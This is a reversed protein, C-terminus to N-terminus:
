WKLGFRDGGAGSDRGGKLDGQGKRRVAVERTTDDEVPQDQKGAPREPPPLTAKVSLGMKQAQPDLSLVKVEIEDGEKVHNRVAVVRHHALESIHVLGEVGPELRVFAGFQAIRTVSGKVTAGVPFRDEIGQWPHETTDRYSLSIKGSDVGIKEIKVQLQQGPELVEKPHEIRDWSLKSIHVLGEVGGGIDVFAGFDMLRTVKGNVISGVELTALKEKREEELHKELVARRSLVLKKRGRNVEAVLCTMKQNVFDGFNEVRHLDIQSAPIFGKIGNVVCELGGTNSGTVRAEVVSGKELDDWNAVDVAAGPIAVEYLGDDPIFRKVVVEIMAGPEPPAKFSRVSAFGEYRGKLAFFVNDQHLRTVTAKIRSELELETKTDSDTAAVLEDIQSGQMAAALQQEIDDDVQRRSPVPVPGAPRPAPPTALPSKGSGASRAERVQKPAAPSLSPDAPDRQSGISLPRREPESAMTGEAAAASAGNSESSEVSAAPTAEISESVPEPQVANSEVPQNEVPATAEPSAASPEAQPASSSDLTPDVPVPNENSM